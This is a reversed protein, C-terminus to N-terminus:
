SGFDVKKYVAPKLRTIKALSNHSGELFDAILESGRAALEQTEQVVTNKFQTGREIERVAEPIADYGVLLPKPANKVLRLMADLAGLAMEDNTCFVGDCPTQVNRLYREAIKCAEERLFRGDEDVAVTAKPRLIKIHQKFAIQRDKKLNGGIVLIRPASCNEPLAGLLAEAAIRAGAKDDFGVYATTPPYDKEQEFPEADVFVVPKVFAAVFRRVEDAGVGPELGAVIGAVYDQKRRLIEDFDRNQGAPGRGSTHSIPVGMLDRERLEELLNSLLGAFFYNNHFPPLLVFVLRRRNWYYLWIQFSVLLGAVVTGTAIWFSEEKLLHQKRAEGLLLEVIGAILAAVLHWYLPHKRLKSWV